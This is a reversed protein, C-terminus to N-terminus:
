ASGGVKMEHMPLFLVHCMPQLDDASNQQQGDQYSMYNSRGFEGTRQRQKHNELESLLHSKIGLRGQM